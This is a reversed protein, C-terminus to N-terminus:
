RLVGQRDRYWLMMARNAVDVAKKNHAEYVMAEADAQLEWRLMIAPFEGDWGVKGNVAEEDLREIMVTAFDRVAKDRRRKDLPKRLLEFILVGLVFLLFGLVLASQVYTQNMIWEANGIYM